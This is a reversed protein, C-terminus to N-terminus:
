RLRHVEIIRSTKPALPSVAPNARVATMSLVRSLWGVMVSKVGDVQKVRAEALIGIIEHARKTAIGTPTTVAGLGPM